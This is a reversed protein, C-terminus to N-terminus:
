QMRCWEEYICQANHSNAVQACGALLNQVGEKATRYAMQKDRDSLQFRFHVIPYTLQSTPADQALVKSPHQSM